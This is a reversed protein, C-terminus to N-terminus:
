NQKESVLFRYQVLGLKLCHQLALSGTMSPVSTHRIPLRHGAALLATASRNPLTRLRLHPTLDRDSVLTFGHSRALDQM